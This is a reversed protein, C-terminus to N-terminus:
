IAKTDDLIEMFAKDVVIIEENSPYPSDWRDRGSLLGASGSNTIYFRLGEKGGLIEPASQPQYWLQLEFHDLVGIAQKSINIGGCRFVTGPFQDRQDIQVHEAWQNSLNVCEGYRGVANLCLSVNPQTIILGPIKVTLNLTWATFDARISHDSGIHNPNETGLVYGDIHPMYLIKFLEAIHKANIEPSSPPHRVSWCSNNLWNEMPSDKTFAYAIYGVLYLLGGVFIVWNVPRMRATFLAEQEIISLAAAKKDLFLTYFGMGAQTAYGITRITQGTVTWKMWYHADYDESQEAEYLKDLLVKMEYYTAGASVAGIFMGFSIRASFFGLSKPGIARIGKYRLAEDVLALTAASTYFSAAVFDATDLRNWYPKDKIAAIVNLLNLFNLTFVAAPLLGGVPQLKTQVKQVPGTVVNIMQQPANGIGRLEFLQLDKRSVFPRLDDLRQQVEKLKLQLTPKQVVSAIKLQRILVKQQRLLQNQQNKKDLLKQLQEADKVILTAIGSLRLSILVALFAGRVAPKGKSAKEVIGKLIPGQLETYLKIVEQKIDAAWKAMTDLVEESIGLKLLLNRLVGENGQTLATFIENTRETANLYEALNFDFETFISQVLLSTQGGALYKNEQTQNNQEALILKEAFKEGIEHSCICTLCGYLKKTLGEHHQHFDKKPLYWFYKCLNEIFPQRDQVLLEHTEKNQVKVRAAHDIWAEMEEKRVREQINLGDNHATLAQKKDQYYRWCLDWAPRYLDGLNQQLKKQTRAYQAQLIEGARQKENYGGKGTGVKTQQELLHFLTLFDEVDQESVILKENRVVQDQLMTQMEKRDLRYLSRIFQALTTKHETAELWLQHNKVQTNQSSGLDLTVGMPDYIAIVQANNPDEAVDRWAKTASKTDLPTYSWACPLPGDKLKDPFSEYEYRLRKFWLLMRTHTVPDDKYKEWLSDLAQYYDRYFSQENKKTEIMREIKKIHPHLETVLEDAIDVPICHSIHEQIGLGSVMITQFHRSRFSIDQFLKTIADRAIPFDTFTVSINHCRSVEFYSVGGKPPEKSHPAFLDEETMLGQDNIRYRTLQETELEWLYLYGERMIRLGVQHSQVKINPKLTDYKADVDTVAYRVPWLKIKKKKYPCQSVLGGPEQESEFMASDNASRDKGPEAMPEPKTETGPITLVTGIQLLRPETVNNLTQLEKVDVNYRIAIWWLTDGKKVVYKAM